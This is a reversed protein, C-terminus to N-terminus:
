RSFHKKIKLQQVSYGYVNSFLLNKGDKQFQHVHNNNM